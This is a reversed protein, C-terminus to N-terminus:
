PQEDLISKLVVDTWVSVPLFYSDKDDVVLTLTPDAAQIQQWRGKDEARGEFNNGLLKSTILAQDKKGLRSAPWEVPTTLWTNLFILRRAQAPLPFDINKYSFVYISNASNTQDVDALSSAVGIALPHGQDHAQLVITRIGQGFHHGLVDVYPRIFWVSPEGYGIITRNGERHIPVQSPFLFAGCFILLLFAAPAGSLTLLWVPWAPWIRSYLRFVIAALLSIAPIIWVVPAGLTLCFLGAIGVTVWIGSPVALWRHRRSPWVLLGALAWACVYLIRHTWDHEALWTFHSSVLTRYEIYLEDSPQFPQYGLMYDPGTGFADWGPDSKEWGGPADLLMHPVAKWILLRSALPAGEEGTTKALNPDKPALWAILAFALSVACVVIIRTQSAQPCFWLGIWVLGAVAGALSGLTPHYVVLGTGVILSLGLSIWFGGRGLGAFGWSAVLLTALLLSIVRTDGVSFLAPVTSLALLSNM